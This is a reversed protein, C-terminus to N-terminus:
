VFMVRFYQVYYVRKGLNLSLILFKGHNVFEQLVLPPILETLCSEDYALSLAHSQATDDVVLPKVVPFNSSRLAM